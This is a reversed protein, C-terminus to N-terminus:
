PLTWRMGFTLHNHGDEYRYDLWDSFRHIMVLGLGGPTAEDLTKPLIKKAVSLPNFPTGADAVTVGAKSADQDLSIELRLRIPVSLATQGGHAMVNALVENLCIVLREM